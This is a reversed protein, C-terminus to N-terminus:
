YQGSKGVRKHKPSNETSKGPIGVLTVLFIAPIQSKQFLQLVPLVPIIFTGAAALRHPDGPSFPLNGDGAGLTFFFENLFSLGSMKDPNKIDKYPLPM